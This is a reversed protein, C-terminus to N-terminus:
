TETTGLEMTLLFKAVGIGFPLWDGKRDSNAQSM